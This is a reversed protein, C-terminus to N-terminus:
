GGYGAKANIAKGMKEQQPGVKPYENVPLIQPINYEGVGYFRAKDLNEFNLM